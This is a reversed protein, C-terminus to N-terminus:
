ALVLLDYLTHTWATIGLGRAVYLISFALGGIFRFIFSELHLQDGYPGVYHFASFILASTVVACITATTNGWRFVRRAVFAVASVLLVRFLLEEYIGAGLALMVRTSGPLRDLGSGPLLASLPMHAVILRMRDSAHWIGVTADAASRPGVVGLLHSTISGIVGGFGAALILSEAFMVLFIWAHMPTRSSRMDRIVFWVSAGIVTVGFVIPAYTRGAITLVLERFVVDAGNRISAADGNSLFAALAEYAVLLPLAFLVSYRAARSSQWYSAVPQPVHVRDSLRSKIKSAM